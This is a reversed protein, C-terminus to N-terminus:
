ITDVGLILTTYVRNLSAYNHWKIADYDVV